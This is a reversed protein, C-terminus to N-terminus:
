STCGAGFPMLIAKFAEELIHSAYHRVSGTFLAYDLFFLPDFQTLTDGAM